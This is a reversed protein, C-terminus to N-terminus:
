TKSGSRRHRAAIVTTWAVLPRGPTFLVIMIIGGVFETVAFQWGMLVILVIGLEIVLNTSAFMFVNAAVFDAGKVFLSKGM